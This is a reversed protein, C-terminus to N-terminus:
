ELPKFFHPQYDELLEPHCIKVLDKLVLDPRATGLEYYTVGGTPGMTNVFSYVKKNIYADFETYHPNAERLAEMSNYYSPSLWIDASKGKSFVSEFSLALSGSTQTDKWLYNVNADNLLQAEPSTGSPLYWVDKYMAGSLVSPQEKVNAALEKAKLYDSEIQNFISDAAKTKNYLVGFFKIWEAKALPSSEVWDGNYIVPIGAKKITEFTKNNGDIGFGIVVDPQLELLIETNLNENKGLERINGEDILKRTKPSSIYETGPFGILSTEEELLELAPIHTTSTVVMREIPIPIIADFLNADFTISPLLNRHVLAYRYQKSANPWPDTITLVKFNENHVISFGKAYKFQSRSGDMKQKPITQKDQKCGFLGLCFLLLFLPRVLKLKKM